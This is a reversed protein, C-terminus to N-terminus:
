QRQQERTHEAIQSIPQKVTVYDIKQQEIQVHRQSMGPRGKIQGIRTNAYCHDTEDNMRKPM